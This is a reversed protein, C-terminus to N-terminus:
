GKLPAPLDRATADGHASAKLTFDVMVMDGASPTRTLELGGSVDSGGAHQAPDAHM